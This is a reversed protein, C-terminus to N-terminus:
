VHVRGLSINSGAKRYRLSPSFPSLRLTGYVMTGTPPLYCKCEHLQAMSVDYYRLIAISSIHRSRLGHFYFELDTNSLIPRWSKQMEEEDVLRKNDYIDFTAIRSLLSLCLHGASMCNGQQRRSPCRYAFDLLILILPYAYPTSSVRNGHPGWSSCNISVATRNLINRWCVGLTCRAAPLYSHLM